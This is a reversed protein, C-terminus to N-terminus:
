RWISVSGTADRFTECWLSSSHVGANQYWRVTRLEGPFGNLVADGQGLANAGFYGHQSDQRRKMRERGVRLHELVRGSLILCAHLFMGLFREASDDL